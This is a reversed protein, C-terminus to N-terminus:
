LVGQLLMKMEASDSIDHVTKLPKVDEFVEAEGTVDRLLDDVFEQTMYPVPVDVDDFTGDCYLDVDLVFEYEDQCLNMQEVLAAGDEKWKQLWSRESKFLVDGYEIGSSEAFWEWLGHWFKLALANSKGICEPVVVSEGTEADWLGTSSHDPFVRIKKM